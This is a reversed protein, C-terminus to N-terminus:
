TKAVSSQPAWTQAAGDHVASASTPQLALADAQLPVKDTVFPTPFATTTQALVFVIPASGIVDTEPQDSVIFKM